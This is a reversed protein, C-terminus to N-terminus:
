PIGRRPLRTVFAEVHPSRREGTPEANTQHPAPLPPEHEEAARAPPGTSPSMSQATPSPPEGLLVAHCSGGHRGSGAPPPGEVLIASLNAIVDKPLPRDFFASPVSCSLGDPSHQTPTHAATGALTGTRVDCIKRSPTAPHITPAPQPERAPGRDTRELALARSASTTGPGLDLEAPSFSIKLPSKVRDSAATRARIRALPIASISISSSPTHTIHSQSSPHTKPDRPAAHQQPCLGQGTANARTAAGRWLWWVGYM